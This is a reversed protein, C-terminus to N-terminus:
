RRRRHAAAAGLRRLGFARAAAAADLPEESRAVVFGHGPDNVNWGFSGNAYRALEIANAVPNEGSVRHVGGAIKAIERVVKSSIATSPGLVYVPAHPHRKLAAATAKPLAKAGSFLVPDGSRAAWAAAPMAFAPDAAPAVVVHKPPAGFLEDRLAAIAAAGAIGSGKVHKTKVGDPTAAAGFAFAQIGRTDRSGQPDLADLAQASAEPLGDAESVLLPAGLPPAM